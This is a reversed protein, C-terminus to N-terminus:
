HYLTYQGSDVWTVSLLIIVRDLQLFLNREFHAERNKKTEQEFQVKFTCKPNQLVKCFMKMM